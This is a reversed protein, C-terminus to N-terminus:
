VAGWYRGPPKRLGRCTRGGTGMVSHHLFAALVTQSCEGGGLGEPDRICSAWSGGSSLPWWVQTTCIGCSAFDVGVGGRCVILDAQERKRSSFATSPFRRFILFCTSSCTHHGLPGAMCGLGFGPTRSSALRVRPLTGIASAFCPTRENCDRFM